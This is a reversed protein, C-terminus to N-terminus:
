STPKNNNVNSLHPLQPVSISLLKGLTVSGHPAIQDPCGVKVRRHVARCMLFVSPTQELDYLLPVQGEPESM